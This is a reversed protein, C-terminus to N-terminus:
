DRRYNPAERTIAVDHVHSERLGAGTIRRFRARTQLDAVTASGTYGMGARLGGVLQHVVADMGGKYAVRGEIGEPVMKHTERIEQQFYRDASGRAMAGLSGMGRYSKYSRGEYLFVEGPAEETGALLSGIMVVDAGAGIAKVIDGSTRIGGDAICPVDREHCAASTELVATFQPVGVGAVVRTTCISGPGIGIKVCDAGAEILAVAAEPTAVNGAVVQINDDMAKVRSVADMVGASHGHATDVVIVDVGADILARARDLGDQGVGTAAACRLRGLDDKNALPHLVAKEMDKVTILGICRGEDDVVLLKEIRHRHLLQRAQDRGVDSRVTVLNERTMLDRVQQDPDTAFRVDRNTLMGVLKKTEREIVPLGSIGHRSMIANVDALTQDPCVTVPNVVMGSEFRKVRRVHEAQEEIGLNKHIVGMGGQQAMAIAMSDETVTDMAASILPINLGIRRTLRTRTTTQGPLVSSQAPVVLVDDFALAERIRDDVRASFAPNNHSSM